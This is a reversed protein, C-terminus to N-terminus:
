KVEAPVRVSVTTEGGSKETEEEPVVETVTGAPWVALKELAMETDASLPKAEGTLKDQARGILAVLVVHETFGDENGEPLPVAETLTVVM